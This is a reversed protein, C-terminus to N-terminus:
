NGSLEEIDPPTIEDEAYFREPTSAENRMRDMLHDPLALCLKAANPRNYPVNGESDLGEGDGEVFEWGKIVFMPYLVVDEDRSKKTDESTINQSKALARVRKGSMKLMANYYPSNAESAPALLIRAKPGLEPFDMWYMASSIEFKQLREFM